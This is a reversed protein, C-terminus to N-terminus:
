HPLEAFLWALGIGAAVLPLYIALAFGLQWKWSRARPSIRQHRDFPWIPIPSFRQPLYYRPHEEKPEPKRSEVALIVVAIVWVAGVALLAILMREGYGTPVLRYRSTADSGLGM